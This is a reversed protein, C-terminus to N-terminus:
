VEYTIVVYGSAGASGNYGGPTVPAVFVFAIGGGQGGCGSNPVPPIDDYGGCPGGGGGGIYTPEISGGGAGGVYATTPDGVRHGPNGNIYTGTGGAVWMSGNWQIALCSTTLISSGYSVAWTTGNTSTGIVTNYLSTITGDAQTQNYVVNVQSDSLATDFVCFQHQYGIFPYGFTCGGLFSITGVSPIQITSLQKILTGNKYYKLAYTSSDYTFTIHTWTNLFTFGPVVVYNAGGVYAFGDTGNTNMAITLAYSGGISAINIPGVTGYPGQDSAYM